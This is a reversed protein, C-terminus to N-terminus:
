GRHSRPFGVAEAANTLQEDIGALSAAEHAAAYLAEASGGERIMRKSSEHAEGGGAVAVAVASALWLTAATAEIREGGRAHLQALLSILDSLERVSELDGLAALRELGKAYLYDGALLALNDDPADILRARGYHLLYGERVCEIILSYAAADDGARPGSAALIGLAPREAPELLHASIVSKEERLERALEILAAEASPSPRV